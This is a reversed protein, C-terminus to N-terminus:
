EQNPRVVREDLKELALRGLRATGRDGLSPVARLRSKRKRATKQKGATARM